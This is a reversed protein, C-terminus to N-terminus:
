YGPRKANCTKGDLRQAVHIVLDFRSAQRFIGDRGFRTGTWSADQLVSAGLLESCLRWVAGGSGTDNIPVCTENMRVAASTSILQAHLRLGCIRSGGGVGELDGRRLAPEM